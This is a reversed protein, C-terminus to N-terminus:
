PKMQKRRYLCTYSLLALGLLVLACCLSFIITLNHYVLFAVLEGRVERSTFMQMSQAAELNDPFIFEESVASGVHIPVTKMAPVVASLIWMTMIGCLGIGILWYSVKKFKSLYETKLNANSIRVAPIDTDSDYEDNLLFDTSVEFLKSLQVVNETDPVSEGLEWKSIAQRSVTLKSALEEQSLGKGKRLQHIKEGLLSTMVIIEKRKTIVNDDM